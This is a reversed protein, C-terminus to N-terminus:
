VFKISVPSSRLVHVYFCGAQCPNINSYRSRRVDFIINNRLNKLETTLFTDHYRSAFITIHIQDHPLQITAARLLYLSGIKKILIIHFKTVSNLVM